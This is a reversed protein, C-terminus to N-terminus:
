FIITDMDKCNSSYEASGDLIQDLIDQADEETEPFSCDWVLLDGNRFEDKTDHIHIAPYRKTYGTSKHIATCETFETGLFYNKM